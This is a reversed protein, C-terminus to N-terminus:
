RREYPEDTYQNTKMEDEDDTTALRQTKAYHLLVQLLTRTKNVFM